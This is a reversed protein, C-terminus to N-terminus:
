VPLNEECYCLSYLYYYYITVCHTHTLLNVQPTQNGGSISVPEDCRGSTCMLIYVGNNGVQSRCRNMVGVMSVCLYIYVM